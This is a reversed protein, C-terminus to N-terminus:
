GIAARPNSGEDSPLKGPEQADNACACRSTWSRSAICAMAERAGAHAGFEATLDPRVRDQAVPLPPEVRWGCCGALLIPPATGGSAKLWMETAGAEEAEEEEEEEEQREQGVGATAEDTNRERRAATAAAAAAKRERPEVADEGAGALADVGAGAGAGDRAGVGAGAGARTGPTHSTGTVHGSWPIPLSSSFLRRTSAPGCRESNVGGCPVVSSRQSPLLDPFDELLALFPPRTPEPASASAGGEAATPVQAAGPPPARGKSAALLGAHFSADYGAGYGASLHEDSGRGVKM